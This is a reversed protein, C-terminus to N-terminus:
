RYRDVSLEITDVLEGDKKVRLWSQAKKSSLKRSYPEYTFGQLADGRSWLEFTLVGNDNYSSIYLPADLTNEFVLDKYGKMIAADLGMPAYTVVMSHPERETPIIGARLLAGYLTTSVQCVGGGMGEVVQGNQFVPAYVYGNKRTRDLITQDVSLSQGPTLIIHNLRQSATKINVAKDAGPQYETSYSAICTDIEELMRQEQTLPDFLGQYVLSAAPETSELCAMIQEKLDKEVVQYGDQGATFNRVGDQIVLSPERKERNHAAAISSIFEDVKEEKFSGQVQINVPWSPFWGKIIGYQVWVPKQKDASLLQSVALSSNEFEPELCSVDLTYTEDEVQITVTKDLYEEKLEEIYEEIEERSKWSLDRGNVTKNGYAFEQWAQVTEEMRPKLILFYAIEGGLVLFALSLIIIKLIKGFM